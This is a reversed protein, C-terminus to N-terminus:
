EPLEQKDCREILVRFEKLAKQFLRSPNIEPHEALFSADEDKISLTIRKTM